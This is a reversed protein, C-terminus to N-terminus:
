YYITFPYHHLNDSVYPRGVSCMEFRAILQDPITTDPDKTIVVGEYQNTSRYAKNNARVITKGGLAYRIADYKMKVSEPPQFYVNRSGLVDCLEEHLDIRDAM